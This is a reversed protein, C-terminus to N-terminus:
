QATGPQQILGSHAAQCNIIIPETGGKLNLLNEDTMESNLIITKM